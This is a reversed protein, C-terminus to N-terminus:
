YYLYKLAINAYIYYLCSQQQVHVFNIHVYAFVCDPDTM